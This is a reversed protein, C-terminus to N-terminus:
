ERENGQPPTATQAKTQEVEKPPTPTHSSTKMENQTAVEVVPKEQKPSSADGKSTTTQTNGQLNPPRPVLREV